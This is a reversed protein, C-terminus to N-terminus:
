KKFIHLTQYIKYHSVTDYIDLNQKYGINIIASDSNKNNTSRIMYTTDNLQSILAGIITIVRNAVPVGETILVMTDIKSKNLYDRGSLFKYKVNQILNTDLPSKYELLNKSNYICISVLNDNHYLRIKTENSYYERSNGNLRGNTYNITSDIHGYKNYYNSTSDKLGKLNYAIVQKIKGSQYYKKKLIHKPLESNTKIICSIIILFIFFGISSALLSKM